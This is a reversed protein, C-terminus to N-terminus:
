YGEIDASDVMDDLEVHVESCGLGYVDVSEIHTADTVGFSEVREKFEGWTM